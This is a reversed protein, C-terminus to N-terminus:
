SGLGGNFSIQVPNDTKVTGYNTGQITLLTGGYISGKKPSYSTVSSSVDLIQDKTEILGYDKHRVTIQFKGSKAGGFMTILKKTADDVGVVNMYRVYTSNTTSTANVTFHDKNLTFPFDADLTVSVKTKM